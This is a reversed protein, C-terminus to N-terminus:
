KAKFGACDPRDPHVLLQQSCPDIIVDLAEMPIAGLLVESADPFVLASCIATRNSFRIMIPGVLNRRSVTGDALEVRTSDHVTLDLQDAIAQNIILLNAGSDVLASVTMKKVDKEAILGKKFATEDYSNIL